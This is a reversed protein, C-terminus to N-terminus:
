SESRGQTLDRGFVPCFEAICTQVINDKVSATNGDDDIAYCEFRYNNGQVWDCWVCKGAKPRTPKDPETEGEQLAKVRARIRESVIKGNHYGWEQEQDDIIALVEKVAGERGRSFAREYEGSLAIERKADNYGRAYVDELGGEDYIMKLTVVDYNSM